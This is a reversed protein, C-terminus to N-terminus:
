RCVLSFMNVYHARQKQVSAWLSEKDTGQIWTWVMITTMHWNSSVMCLYYMFCWLLRITDNFRHILRDWKGLTSWESVATHYLLKHPFIVVADPAFSRLSASWVPPLCCSDDTLHRFWPMFSRTIKQWNWRDVLAVVASAPSPFKASHSASDNEMMENECQKVKLHDIWYHIVHVWIGPFSLLFPFVELHLLCLVMVVWFIDRWAMWGADWCVTKAPRPSWVRRERVRQERIADTYSYEYAAASKSCLTSILPSCSSKTLPNLPAQAAHKSDKVRGPTIMAISVLRQRAFLQTHKEWYWWLVVVVFHIIKLCHDILASFNPSYDRLITDTLFMTPWMRDPVLCDLM